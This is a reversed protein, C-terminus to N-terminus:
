GRAGRSRLYDAILGTRAMGLPSRMEGPYNGSPVALNPDAGNDLLFRVMEIRGARAANILPTEDFLVFGNVNAGSRVLRTALQLDGNRAAVILPSGDGTLKANVDAGAALLAGATADDRDLVADM